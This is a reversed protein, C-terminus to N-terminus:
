RVEKRLVYGPPPSLAGSLPLREAAQGDRLKAGVPRKGRVVLIGCDGVKVFVSLIYLM